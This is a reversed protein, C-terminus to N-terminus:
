LLKSVQCVLGAQELIPTIITNYDIQDPWLVRNKIGLIDCVKCFLKGDLSVWARYIDARNKIYYTPLQKFSFFYDKSNIIIIDKNDFNGNNKNVFRNDVLKADIFLLLPSKEKFKLLIDIQEKNLSQHIVFATNLNPKDKINEKIEQIFKNFPFFGYELMVVWPEARCVEKFNMGQFSGSAHPSTFILSHFINERRQLEIIRYVLQKGLGIGRYDERVAVGKIIKGKFSATGIIERGDFFLLTADTNNEFRLGQKEVFDKALIKQKEDTLVFRLDM